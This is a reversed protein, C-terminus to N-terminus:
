IQQSWKGELDLFHGEPGRLSTVYFAALYFGTKVWMRKQAPVTAEESLTLCM